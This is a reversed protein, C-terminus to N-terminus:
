DHFSLALSLRRNSALLLPRCLQRCGSVLSKLNKTSALTPPRAFRQCASRYSSAMAPAVAPFTRKTRDPFDSTDLVRLPSLGIEPIM